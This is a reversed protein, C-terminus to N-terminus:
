GYGPILLRLICQNYRRGVLNKRTMWSLYLLPHPINVLEFDVKELVASEITHLISTQVPTSECMAKSLHILFWRRELNKCFIYGM